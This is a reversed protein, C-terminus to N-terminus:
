YGRGNWDIGIESCDWRFYIVWQWWNFDTQGQTRLDEGARCAEDDDDEDDVDLFLFDREGAGGCCVTDVCERWRVEWFRLGGVDDESDYTEAHRKLRLNSWSPFFRNLYYSLRKNSDLGIDTFQYLWEVQRLYRPLNLNTHLNLRTRKLKPNNLIRQIPDEDDYFSKLIPGAFKQEPKEFQSIDNYDDDASVAVKGMSIPRHLSVANIVTWLSVNLVLFWLLHRHIPSAM